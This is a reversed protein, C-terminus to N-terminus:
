KYSRRKKICGRSHCRLIRKLWASNQTKCCRDYSGLPIKHGRLHMELIQSLPPCQVGFNLSYLAKLAGVREGGKGLFSVSKPSGSQRNRKNRHGRCIGVFRTKYRNHNTQQRENKEDRFAEM